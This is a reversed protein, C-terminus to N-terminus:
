LLKQKLFYIDTRLKKKLLFERYSELEAIGQKKLIPNNENEAWKLLEPSTALKNILAIDRTLPQLVRERNFQIQKKLFLSGLSYSINDRLIIYGYYAICLTIGLAFVVIILFEKKLSM